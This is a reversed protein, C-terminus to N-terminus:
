QNKTKPIQDKTMSQEGKRLLHRPVFSMKRWVCGALLWAQDTRSVKPRKTWVDYDIARIRKLIKLGGHIFLWVDSGLVRPVQDVLPLGNRLYAEAREVEFALLRRFEPTAAHRDLVEENYGFRRCDALPLYLRGRNWDNAVDQWFNALQLGTCVADSLEGRADDHSRGLHLVLRGVPNASNRCYGLLEDFTEYRCVRQDQRFAALLDLFPESPIAFERITDGLAVFVPHRAEGAYCARLEGEWWDLLELSRGRDGTEDALDDAWRCYAYIHYFHPRLVRPLLWSAVAFNEYHTRGLRRCYARSFELSPTTSAAGGAGYPSPGYRALDAAFATASM